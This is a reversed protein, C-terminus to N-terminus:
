ICRRLGKCLQDTRVEDAAGSRVEECADYRRFPVVPLRRRDEGATRDLNHPVGFVVIPFSSSRFIVKFRSTDMRQDAVMLQVLDSAICAAQYNPTEKGGILDVTAREHRGTMVFEYDRGPILGFDRRLLVLPARGGSNSSMAVLGITKGKLDEPRNILSNAPVIIEMQYDFRGEADAAAFLPHFGAANVALPVAGTNFATIHLRGDKVAQIQQEYNRLDVTKAGEIGPEAPATNLFKVPRGTAKALHEMLPQWTKESEAPDDAAIFCFQIEAPNIWKSADAPTDALKDGDADSYGADLSEHQKLQHALEKLSKAVDVPEVKGEATVVYYCYAGAALAPVLVAM